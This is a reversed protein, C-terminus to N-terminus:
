RNKRAKKGVPNQSQYASEEDSVRDMEAQAKAVDSASLPESSAETTTTSSSSNGCGVLALCPLSLITALFLRLKM